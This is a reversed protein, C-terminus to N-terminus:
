GRVRGCKRGRRRRREAGGGPRGRLGKEGSDAVEEAGCGCDRAGDAGSCGVLAGQGTRRWGRASVCGSHRVPLGTLRRREAEGDDSV